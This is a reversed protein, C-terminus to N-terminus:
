SPPPRPPFIRRYLLSFLHQFLFVSRSCDFIWHGRFMSFVTSMTWPSRYLIPTWANDKVHGDKSQDSKRDDAASSYDTLFVPTCGSILRQLPSQTGRFKQPGRRGSDPTEYSADVDHLLVCAQQGPPFKSGRQVQHDGLLPLHGCSSVCGWRAM